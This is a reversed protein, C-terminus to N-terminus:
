GRWRPPNPSNDHSPADIEGHPIQGTFFLDFLNSLANKVDYGAQSKDKRPTNFGQFEKPLWVAAVFRQIERTHLPGKM